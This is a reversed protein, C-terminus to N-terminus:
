DGVVRFGQSNYRDAPNFFHRCACPLDDYFVGSGWNGGRTIKYEGSTSGIPNTQAYSSYKGYWDNCWECVNGAMDYLGYGNPKFSGVRMTPPDGSGHNKSYCCENKDWKNGWPFKYHKPGGAAYEWEGETPLRLGYHKCFANAGYWSVNIVPHKEWGSEAYYKGNICTIHTYEDFVIWKEREEKKPQNENLFAVYQEVTVQTEGLWFSKVKVNHVPKEDDEGENSMQFLGSSIEVMKYGFVEDNGMKFTGGPIRVLKIGPGVIKTEFGLENKEM